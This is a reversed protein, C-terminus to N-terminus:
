WGRWKQQPRLPSGAEIPNLMVSASVIGEIRRIATEAFRERYRRRPPRATPILWLSGPEAAEDLLEDLPRPGVKAQALAEVAEARRGIPVGVRGGSELCPISAAKLAVLARTM